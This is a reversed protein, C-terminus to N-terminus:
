PRTATFPTTITATSALEGNEDLFCSEYRTEVYGELRTPRGSAIDLFTLDIDTITTCDGVRLEQVFGSSARDGFDAISSREASSRVGGSSTHRFLDVEIKTARPQRIELTGERVGLTDVPCLFSGPGCSLNANVADEFTTTGGTSPFGDGYMGPYLFVDSTGYTVAWTGAVDGDYRPSSGSGCGPSGSGSGLSLVVLPLLLLLRPRRLM